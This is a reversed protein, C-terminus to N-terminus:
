VVRHIIHTVHNQRHKRKKDCCIRPVLPGMHGWLTASKCNRLLNEDWVIRKGKLEFRSMGREHKLSEGWGSLPILPVGNRRWRRIGLDLSTEMLFRTSHTENVNKTSHMRVEQEDFRFCDM